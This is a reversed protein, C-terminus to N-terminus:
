LHMMKLITAILEHAFLHRDTPDGLLDAGREIEIAVGREGM